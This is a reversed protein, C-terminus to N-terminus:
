TLPPTADPEESHDTPNLLYGIGVVGLVTGVPIFILWVLYLFWQVRRCLSGWYELDGLTEPVRSQRYAAAMLAIFAGITELRGDLYNSGGEDLPVFGLCPPTVITGVLGAFLRFLVNYGADPCWLFASLGGGLSMAFVASEFVFRVPVAPRSTQMQKQRV